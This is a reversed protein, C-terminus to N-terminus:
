RCLIVGKRLDFQGCPCPIRGGSEDSDGSTENQTYATLTCANDELWAGVSYPFRVDGVCGLPTTNNNGNQKGRM